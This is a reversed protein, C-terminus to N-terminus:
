PLTFRISDRITAVAAGDHSWRSGAPGMALVFVVHHFRRRQTTTAERLYIALWGDVEGAGVRWGTGSAPAPADLPGRDHLLELGGGVGAVVLAAVALPPDDAPVLTDHPYIGSFIALAAHEDPSSWTYGTKTRAMEIGPPLDFDIAHAALTGRYHASIREPLGAPEGQADSRPPSASEAPSPHQACGIALSVFALLRRLMAAIM